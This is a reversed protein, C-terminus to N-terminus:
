RSCGYYLLFRTKVSTQFCFFPPCMNGGSVSHSELFWMRRVSCAAAVQWSSGYFETLELLSVCSSWTGVLSGSHGTECALLFYM